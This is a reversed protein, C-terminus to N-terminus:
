QPAGKTQELCDLLKEGKEKWGIGPYKDELAIMEVALNTPTIKEPVGEPLGQRRMLDLSDRALQSRINRPRSIPTKPEARKEAEWRRNQLEQKINLLEAISPFRSQPGHTRKWESMIEGFLDGISSLCFSYDGIIQENLKFNLHYRALAELNEMFGNREKPQSADLFSSQKTKM